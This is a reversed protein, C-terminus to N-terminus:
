TLFLVPQLRVLFIELGGSKTVCYPQSNGRWSWKSSLRNLGFGGNNPKRSAGGLSHTRSKGMPGRLVLNQNILMGMHCTAQSFPHKLREMFHWWAGNANSCIGPATAFCNEFIFVLCEIESHRRFDFLYRWQLLVEVAEGLPDKRRDERVCVWLLGIIKNRQFRWGFSVWFCPAVLARDELHPSLAM